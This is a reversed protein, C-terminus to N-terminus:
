LFGAHIEGYREGQETPGYDSESEAGEQPRAPRHDDRVHRRPKEQRHVLVRNGSKWVPRLDGRSGDAQEQSKQDEIEPTERREPQAPEIDGHEHPTKTGCNRGQGVPHPQIVSQGGAEVLHMSGTVTRAAGWFTVTPVAPHNRKKAMRENYCPLTAACTLSAAPFGSEVGPPLESAARKNM